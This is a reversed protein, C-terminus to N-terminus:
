GEQNLYTATRWRVTKGEFCSVCLVSCYITAQWICALCPTPTNGVPTYMSTCSCPFVYTCCHLACCKVHLRCGNFHPSAPLDLRPLIGSLATTAQWICALRPTRPNGSPLTCHRVHGFSFALVVIYQAANWMRSLITCYICMESIALSISFLMKSIISIAM